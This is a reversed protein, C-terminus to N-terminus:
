ERVHLVLRQQFATGDHAQAALRINWDGAALDARAVYAQGDFRFEPAIDDRMHTARGIVATIRAAEVARGQRDSITLVVSEAQAHAQVTWGLAEQAARRTDFEQSAM